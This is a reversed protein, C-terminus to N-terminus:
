EVVVVVAAFHQTKSSLSVVSWRIVICDFLNRRLMNRNPDIAGVASM